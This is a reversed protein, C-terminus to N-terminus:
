SKRYFEKLNRITEFRALTKQAAKVTPPSIFKGAAIFVGRESNEASEAAEIVERASRIEEDSPTYIENIAFVQGPNMACMGGMGLDRGAEAFVRLGEPDKVRVYPTDVPEIGAARAALAVQARPVILAMDGDSHRGQLDALFDECGFILGVLRQSAKTVARANLVARVTEIVPILSFHGAPLGLDREIQELKSDLREIDEACNARPYVIGNLEGCAVGALDGSTLNTEFSNVRVFVAKESYLGKELAHRVTERAAAKLVAPVADELDLVLCDAETGASKKMMRESHGPVFLVSRLVWDSQYPKSM